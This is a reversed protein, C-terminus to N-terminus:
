GDYRVSQQVEWAAEECGDAHYEDRNNGLWYVALRDYAAPREDTIPEHCHACEKDTM